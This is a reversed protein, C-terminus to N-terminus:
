KSHSNPNPVGGLRVPICHVGGQGRKTSVRLAFDEKSDEFKSMKSLVSWIQSKKSSSSPMM